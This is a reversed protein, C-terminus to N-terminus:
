EGCCCCCCCCNPDACCCVDTNDSYKGSVCRNEAAATLYLLLAGATIPECCVDMNDSYKGSVRRDEATAVLNLVLAGATIPESADRDVGFDLPLYSLM